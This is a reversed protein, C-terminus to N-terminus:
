SLINPYGALGCYGRRGQEDGQDGYRAGSPDAWRWAMCGSGLCMSPHHRVGSTVTSRSGQPCWKIGAEQETLIM